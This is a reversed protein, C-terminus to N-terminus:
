RPRAPLQWLPALEDYAPAPLVVAAAPDVRKQEGPLAGVVMGPEAIKRLEALLEPGVAIGSDTATQSPARETVEGAGEVVVAPGVRLLRFVGAPTRRGGGVLKPGAPHARQLGNSWGLGAKGVIAEAPAGVPQWAAGPGSREFRTVTAASTNWGATAFVALHRVEPPLVEAPQLARDVARFTVREARQLGLSESRLSVEAVVDPAGAPNANVAVVRLTGAVDEGVRAGSAERRWVAARADLPVALSAGAQLREIQAALDIGTWERPSGPPALRDARYLVTVPIPGVQMGAAPGASPGEAAALLPAGLVTVALLCGARLRLRRPHIGAVM